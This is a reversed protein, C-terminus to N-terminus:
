FLEIEAETPQSGIYTVSRGLIKKENYCKALKMSAKESDSFVVELM